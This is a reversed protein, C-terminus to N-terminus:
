WWLAVGDDFMCGGGVGWFAGDERGQGLEEGEKQCESGEGKRREWRVVGVRGEVVSMAIIPVPM